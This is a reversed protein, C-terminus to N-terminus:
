YPLSHLLKLIDSFVGMATVEAGAGPGQIVLPTRSYRATTFAIINDSGQTGAFPHTTPVETLGAAGKGGALTGVYRLVAGRRRAQEIRSRWAADRRALQGYFKPGFAGRRLAPPVLNEARSDALSMEWGLQRGLILLKRAVDQGSLDDRPDPETFGLDHAERVCESFPKSGDFSNFLWSLTGSLIGEVKRVSDGSAVLDKLTSIIPLGAGVNAECLFHKSRADLIDMLARYRRPPLVNAKKNPTIIHLDARVYDPYDAVIESSATCDVLAVNIFPAGPLRRAIEAPSLPTQSRDLATRWSKADFGGADFALKRSNAVGCVRVDFGQKLLYERRTFIQDLLTRGINGVGAVVLALRKRNEFFAEHIVNLTRGAERSNVVMSINHESAGQAIASISIGHRGIGDFVKGAVGPTGRMGEGVIAVITQDRKADLFTWKSAIEHAFERELAKRARDADDDSVAFCITHESSAQSILIVNVRAAALARFLRESTGPVGVMALGKLTLLTIRDVSSIGRAVETSTTRRASVRTGPADPNLTNKIVIPIKKSVAPAITASHLVRAGFYSLEMAEEYSLHPVVFAGPVAAPDASLIGDVDTWIEVAAAGLAAGILSATYDSGNRGITTTRGDETRAIFGTVVAIVNRGHDAKLKRYGARAARATPVAQVVAQTFTDDTVIWERADVARAPHRRDLFAALIPASLREGFSAAMDRARPHADRLLHIGRLVDALEGTLLAIDRLVKRSGSRGLLATAASRHRRVLADLIEEHSRDGAEARRAAELLQNTVGQFASVVVVVNDRAARELVIDAVSRLREPTSLSSGGFKLIKM